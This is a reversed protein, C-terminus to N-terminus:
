KNGTTHVPQHRKRCEFCIIKCSIEHKMKSLKSCTNCHDIYQSGYLYYQNINNNSIFKYNQGAIFTFWGHLIKEVKHDRALFVAVGTSTIIPAEYNFRM